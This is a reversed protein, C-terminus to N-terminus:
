FDIKQSHVWMSKGQDTFVAMYPTMTDAVLLSVPVAVTWIMTLTLLNWVGLYESGAVVLLHCQTGVGFEIFKILSRRSPHLLSCKLETSDPLWTTVTHHFGVGLLSGDSSFAVANVTLDKYFGVSLCKWIVGKDTFIFHM